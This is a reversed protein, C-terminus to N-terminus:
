RCSKRSDSGEGPYLPLRYESRRSFGNIQEQKRFSVSPYPPIEEPFNSPATIRGEAPFPHGFRASFFGQMGTPFAPIPFVAKHGEPM